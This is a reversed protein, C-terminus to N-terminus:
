SPCDSRSFQWPIRHHTSFYKDPFISADMDSFFLLKQRWNFEGNIQHLLLDVFCLGLLDGRYSIGTSFFAFPGQMGFGIFVKISQISAIIFWHVNRHRIAFFNLGLKIFFLTSLWSSFIIVITKKNFTIKIHDWFEFYESITESMVEDRGVDPGTIKRWRVDITNEILLRGQVLTWKRILLNNSCIKRFMYM